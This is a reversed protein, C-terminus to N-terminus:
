PRPVPRLRGQVRRAQLVRQGRQRVAIARRLAGRLHRAQGQRARAPRHVRRHFHDDQGQRHRLHPEHAQHTRVDQDGTAARRGGAHHERPVEPRATPKAGAGLMSALQAEARKGISTRETGDDQKLEEEGFFSGQSAADARRKEILELAKDRWAGSAFQGGQRNAVSAGASALEAQVKDIVSDREEKGLMGLLHGKSEAIKERRTGLPKKTVRGYHTAFQEVFRGRLTDLVAAQARKTDGHMRVYEAWPSSEFREGSEGAAYEEASHGSMWAHYHDRLQAKRLEELKGPLDAKMRSLEAQAREPDVTLTGDAISRELDDISDFLASAGEM